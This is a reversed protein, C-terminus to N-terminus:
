ALDNSGERTDAWDDVFYTPGNPEATGNVYRTYISAPVAVHDTLGLSTLPNGVIGRAAERADEHTPGYAIEVGNKIARWRQHSLTEHSSEVRICQDNIKASEVVRKPGADKPVGLTSLPEPPTSIPRKEMAKSTMPLQAVAFGEGREHERTRPPSSEDESDDSM